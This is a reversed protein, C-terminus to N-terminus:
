PEDSFLRNIEKLHNRVFGVNAESAGPPYQREGANEKEKLFLAQTSQEFCYMTLVYDRPSLGASQIAARARSHDDIRTM